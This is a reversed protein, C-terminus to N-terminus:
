LTPRYSIYPGRLKPFRLGGCFDVIIGIEPRKKKCSLAMFCWVFSTALPQWLIESNSLKSTKPGVLALGRVEDQSRELALAQSLRRGAHSRLRLNLCNFDTLCTKHENTQINKCTKTHKAKHKQCTPINGELSM